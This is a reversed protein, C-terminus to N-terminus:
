DLTDPYLLLLSAVVDLLYVLSYFLAIYTFLGLQWWEAVQFPSQTWIRWERRKHYRWHWLLCFRKLQNARPHHRKWACNVLKQGSSDRLHIRPSSVRSLTGLVVDYGLLNRCVNPVSVSLSCISSLPKCLNLKVSM